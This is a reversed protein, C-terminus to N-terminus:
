HLTHGHPAPASVGGGEPAGAMSAPGGVVVTTFQGPVLRRRLAERVQDLTVAEIREVFRDLYDLPLGYFGISVLYDLIKSNSDVRLAFSGAINKVAANFQDETPGKEIYTSITQQLIKAATEAQDNRTEIGAVFPGAVRMGSLHSAVSYSLGRQERIEEALVSVLGGGGLAHNGVYLPFYDPDPRLIAAQGLLIHTQSSPYDRKVIEGHTLQPARPLAPPRTGSPLRGIVKNVLMEADAHSLDGILAVIANAGVYYRRYFSQLDQRKLGALTRADGETPTGYPHAPYLAAYFADDAVADPSQLRQQLGILVLRRGRELAASPFDPSQLVQGLKDAAVALERRESLSRMGAWAFDRQTSNSLSAGVNEVQESIQEASLGDAGESLMGNTFMALGPRGEDRASGADFAVRLDVMPLEPAHVFLVQAGNATRWTEVKPGAMVVHCGLCLALLVILRCPKRLDDTHPRM